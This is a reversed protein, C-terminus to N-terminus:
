LVKPLFRVLRVGILAIAVATSPTVSPSFSRSDYFIVIALAGYRVLYEPISGTRVLSLGVRKRYFPALLPVKGETVADILLHSLYGWSAALVPACAGWAVVAVVTLIAWALLTHAGGRHRVGPAWARNVTKSILSSAHDIDPMLAGIASGGWAMWELRDGTCASYVALGAAAVWVHSRFMM